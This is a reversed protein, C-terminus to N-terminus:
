LLNGSLHPWRGYLFMSSCVTLGAPIWSAGIHRQVAPEFLM